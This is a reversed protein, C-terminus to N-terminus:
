STKVRHRLDDLRKRETDPREFLIHARDFLIRLTSGSGSQTLLARTLSSVQNHLRKREAMEKRWRDEAERKDSEVKTVVHSLQRMVSASLDEM